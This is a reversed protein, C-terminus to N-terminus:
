CFSLIEYNLISLLLISKVGRNGPSEQWERIQFETYKLINYSECVQSINLQYM